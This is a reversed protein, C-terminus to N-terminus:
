QIRKRVWSRVQGAAEPGEQDNESCCPRAGHLAPRQRERAATQPHHSRELTCGSGVRLSHVKGRPLTRVAPGQAPLLHGSSSQARQIGCPVGLHIENLYFVHCPNFLPPPPASHQIPLPCRSLTTGPLPRRLSEPRSPNPSPTPLGKGGPESAPGRHKRGPGIGMTIM